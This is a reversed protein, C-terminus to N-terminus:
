QVDWAAAPTLIHLVFGRGRAAVVDLGLAEIRRRLRYALDDLARGCPDADRGWIARCLAARPVVGGDAALLLGAFKAQSPTLVVMSAARRLCTSDVLVARELSASARAALNDLRTAVDREDAPLRIWDEMVDGSVPPEVDDPVLLLRPLMAEALREREAGDRPWHILAVEVPHMPGKYCRVARRPVPNSRRNVCREDIRAM